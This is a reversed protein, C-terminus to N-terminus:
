KGRKQLIWRSCLAGAIGGLPAGVSVAALLVDAYTGFAAIWLVLVVFSTGIASTLSTRRPSAIAGAAMWILGAVFGGGVATANIGQMRFPGINRSDRAYILLNVLVSISGAVLGSWLSTRQRVSMKQPGPAVPPGPAVSPGPSGSGVSKFLEDIEESIVALLDDRKRLQKLLERTDEATASERLSKRLKFVLTSQEEYSLTASTQIQQALGGLYSVPVKPPAPLSDPLPSPPRITALARALRLVTNRDPTQYDVFQIEALPPPLLTLSVEGSILVPLIPKGLDAAYAYERKCATSNLSEPALVFVFVACDRINALIQDWWAQGGSLENDFWVSRGLAEIDAALSKAVSDSTRNYSIFVNAM